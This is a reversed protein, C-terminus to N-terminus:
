LVLGGLFCIGVAAKELFLNLKCACTLRASKWAMWHQYRYVLWQVRSSCSLLTSSRGTTITLHVAKLKLIPIHSWRDCCNPFVGATSLAM